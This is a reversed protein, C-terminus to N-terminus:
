TATWPREQYSPRKFFASFGGGSLSVRKRRSQRFIVDRLRLWSHASAPWTTLNKAHGSDKSTQAKIAPPQLISTGITGLKQFCASAADMHEAPYASEVGGPSPFLPRSLSWPLYKTAFHCCTLRTKRLLFHNLAAGSATIYQTDLSAECFLGRQKPWEGWYYSPTPWVEKSLRYIMSSPKNLHQSLKRCVETKGGVDNETM